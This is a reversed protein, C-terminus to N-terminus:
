WFRVRPFRQELNLFEVIEEIEVKAEALGAVDKFTVNTGNNKDFVTAKSKGVNFIGNGGGGSSMRRSMFIIFIIFILFPGFNWFVKMLDSGKEYNVQIQAKGNSALTANWSDIYDQIKDRSPITAKIKNDGQMGKYLEFGQAKAGENTLIGEATGNEPFVTIRTMQGQQAAKEFDTWNVEKTQSGDQFYYLALLSLIILAYMWYMNFLPRKSQRNNKKPQLINM